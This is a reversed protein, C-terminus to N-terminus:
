LLKTTSIRPKGAMCGPCDTGQAVVHPWRCTGSRTHRPDFKSCVRGPACMPCVAASSSGSPVSSPGAAVSPCNMSMFHPHMCLLDAIGDALLSAFKWTWEQSDKSNGGEIRHHEPCQRQGSCVLPRFRKLLVEHSATLRSAKRIPLNSKRDCLHTQCQHMVCSVVRVRIM